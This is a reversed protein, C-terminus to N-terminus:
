ALMAAALSARTVGALRAIAERVAAPDTKADVAVVVADVRLALAATDPKHVAPADLVVLDYDQGAEVLLNQFTGGSLLAPSNTLREGALLLDLPSQEDPSMADRWDAGGILVQALGDSLDGLVAGLVPSQLNGEILLVREGDAAAVRAFAAAIGCGAEDSGIATFVVSRPANMRGAFRLQGRMARIAEAEAAAPFEVVRQALAGRGRRLQARPAVGLVPVGLSQAMDAASEFSEVARIRLVALLCGLVAGALGGTGTILKMNPGSPLSPPVAPSLVRVEPTTETGTPQAATQQESTLLSQYLARRTTAEQQLQDLQAQQNEALVSTQRADALQKQVQIEQERAVRVQAGLSAVIRQVESDVQSHAAQLDARASRVGPYDPGYRSSLEAVKRSAVSEQDRLTSVTPSGLVSVLAGSLGQKSLATARNWNAELQSREVGAKAVAMALEELQQQGVSGARLGVLEGKSRLDRMKQEIGDLEAKVQNIRQVMVDNAGRNADVRRNARNQIYTTTLGNIFEAAVRPDQATFSTSIVLSRNDQFVSLAKTVSNVVSEDPGPAPGTDPSQPLLSQVFSKAQQLLTPPRLAPNFEPDKDLGLNTAVSQILARSTLAQAETRVWPMPDPANASRLAGQLEPIAFRDGEVTITNSATYTKPVSRGYLFAGAAGAVGCLAILWMHRRLSKVFQTLRLANGPEFASQRSLSGIPIDM